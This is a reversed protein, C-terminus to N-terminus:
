RFWHQSITLQFRLFLDWHFRLHFEYMNMWSFANSFTTQVIAAMKGRGQHTLGDSAPSTINQFLYNGTLVMTSSARAGESKNVDVVMTHVVYSICAWRGHSPHGSGTCDPARGMLLIEISNSIHDFKPNSHNLLHEVSWLSIKHM